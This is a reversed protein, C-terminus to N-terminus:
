EFRMFTLLGDRVTWTHFAPLRWTREFRTWTQCGANSSGNMQESTLRVCRKSSARWTIQCRNNRTRRKTEAHLANQLPTLTVIERVLQPGEATFLQSGIKFMGALGSLREVLRLAADRDPVDLAVILRDKTNSPKQNMAHDTTPLRYGTAPQRHETASSRGESTPRRGIVPWQGGAVIRPQSVM